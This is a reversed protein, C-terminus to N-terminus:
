DNDLSVKKNRAPMKQRKKKSEPQFRVRIKRPSKIVQVHSMNNTIVTILNHEEISVSELIFLMDDYIVYLTNKQRPTKYPLPEDKKLVTAKKVIDIITYVRLYPDNSVREKWRVLAHDTVHIIHAKM